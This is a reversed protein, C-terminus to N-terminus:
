RESSRTERMAPNMRYSRAPAAGLRRCLRSHIFGWAPSKVHIALLVSHGLPRRLLRFARLRRICHLQQLGVVLLHSFEKLLEVLSRVVFFAGDGPPEEGFEVDM